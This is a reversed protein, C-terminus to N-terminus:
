SFLASLSGWLKIFYPHLDKFTVLAFLIMLLIFGIQHITAEIQEKVPRRIIAEIVLFLLRGGDLAPIPLLNIIALNISLLATFQLVYIFGLKAVQGTLVAIGVPGSVEAAVKGSSFIDGIIKILGEFIATTLNWTSEIGKFIATYWPYSVIATKVLSVGIRAPSGAASVPTIQKELTENGRTITLTTVRNDRKAIEDQLSTITSIDINDVKLVVDGVQLGAASAPSDPSVGIFQIKPNKYNLDAGPADDIISPIGAMFGVSLLLFCLVFNMFVGSFLMIFRQWVPRSAFSDTNKKGAGDEGKIKVFGGLPFWNLSIVTREYNDAPDKRGVRQWQGLNNKVWGILRPPYGFGFEEAKVKFFRASFFHGLEHVLVLVGLVLIFTVLTLLM